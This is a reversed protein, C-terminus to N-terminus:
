KGYCEGFRDSKLIELTLVKGDVVIRPYTIRLKIDSLVEIRTNLDTTKARRVLVYASSLEEIVAVYYYYEERELSIHEYPKPYKVSFGPETFLKEENDLLNEFNEVSVELNLTGPALVDWSVNELILEERGPNMALLEAEGPPANEMKKGSTRSSVTGDIKM